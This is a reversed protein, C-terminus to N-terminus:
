ARGKRNRRQKAMEQRESWWARIADSFLFVIFILFIIFLVVLLPFTADQTMDLLDRM